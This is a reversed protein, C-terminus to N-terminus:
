GETTPDGAIAQAGPLAQLPPLPCGISDAIARLLEAEELTIRGDAGICAACGALVQKKLPPAAADLENLAADLLRLDLDSAPLADEIGPWGLNKLGAEFAHTADIESSHGVRALMGLVQRIPGSLAEPSEHRVRAPRADGFHIALHRMLMRQLAYEYLSLQHDARILAGVDKIFSLYQEGSLRRLAPVAMSVLPLRSEPPLRLVEPLVSQLLKFAAPDARGALGRLQEARVAEDQPDVLLAFVMIRAGFPEYALDKLSRPLSALIGSAYALQQPDVTGVHAVMEAPNFRFGGQASRTQPRLTTRTPEDPISRSETGISIRSFDGDFSPDIRRIRDALPPHTAFAEFLHGVADGFFLHSTEKAESSQIKSGESYAGIKKLAGAIGGPNRTFQVASADALYERQRSVAAKILNGFFVGVYGLVYLALGILPWPIGGKRDDDRRGSSRGQYNTSRFIIWGTMSILLIGYLVGILRINLRMDGNLIHSFEHAIVGQLEDRSLNRICGRTVGIVADGPTYGAAFANIGDEQEMLYVPPVPTGSAIAMEEVVNLIKREDPDSTSQTLPRGGLLEAVTHGGGALSAIRYLSGGGVLALTALSVAGFLGPDWLTPRQFDGMSGRASGSALLAGAVIGYALLIILIVAVVFYFVLLGTKRRATEQHQFFDM